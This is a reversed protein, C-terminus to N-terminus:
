LNTINSVKFKVSKYYNALIELCLPYCFITFDRDSSVETPFDPQQCVGAGPWHSRGLSSTSAGSSNDESWWGRGGAYASDIFIRM